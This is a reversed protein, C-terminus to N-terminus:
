IKQIVWIIGEIEKELFKCEEKQLELYKKLHSKIDQHELILEDCRKSIFVLYEDNIKKNNETTSVEAIIKDCASTLANKTDFYNKYHEYGTRNVHTKNKLYGDDIIVCGGVKVQNRM